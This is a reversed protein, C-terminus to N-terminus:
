YFVGCFLNNAQMRSLRDCMIIPHTEPKFKEDVGVTTAHILLCDLEFCGFDLTRLRQVTQRSVSKWLFKVTEGEYKAMLDTAEGALDLGHLLFCQEEAAEGKIRVQLSGADLNRM